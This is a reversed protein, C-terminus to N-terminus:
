RLPRSMVFDQQVDRGLVFTQRGVIRFGSKEYFAIARPNREWVALWLVDANWEHAQEVCVRMLAEGVGRGHWARDVYIRQVEATSGGAVGDATSGRRAVTYGVAEGADDEAIWVRREPDSVAERSDIMLAKEIHERMDEPDNDPGFTQEFLRGSLAALLDDDTVTARRLSVRANSPTLEAMPHYNIAM